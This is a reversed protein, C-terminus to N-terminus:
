RKAREHQHDGAALRHVCIEAVEARARDADAPVGYYERRKNQIIEALPRQHEVPRGRLALLQKVAHHRVHQKVWHYRKRRKGSDDSRLGKNGTGKRDRCLRDREAQERAQVHHMGMVRM